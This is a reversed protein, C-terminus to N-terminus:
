HLVVPIKFHSGSFNLALIYLGRPLDSVNLLTNGSVLMGKDVENGGVTVVRFEGEESSLITLFEAAPNPYVSLVGSDEATVAKPYYYHNNGYIDVEKLRYYRTEFVRDPDTFSYSNFYEGKDERTALEAWTYLDNSSEIVFYDIDKEAATKWEVYAFGNKLQVDFYLLILPLVCGASAPCSENVSVPGSLNGDGATWVDTMGVTIVNSSGGGSGKTISGTSYIEIKSGPPLLLKAGTKFDLTGFIHLYVPSGSITFNSTVSVTDGEEITIVDGGQPLAGCSWTGTNEWDDSDTSNCTASFASAITSVLFLALLIRKLM